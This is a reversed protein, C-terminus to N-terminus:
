KYCTSKTTKLSSTAKLLLSSLAFGGPLMEKLRYEFSYPPPCGMQKEHWSVMASLGVKDNGAELIVSIEWPDLAVAKQCFIPLVPLWLAKEPRAELDTSPDKDEVSSLQDRFSARPTRSPFRGRVGNASNGLLQEKPSDGKCHTRRLHYM